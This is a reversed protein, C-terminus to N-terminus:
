FSVVACENTYNDIAILWLERHSKNTSEKVCSPITAFTYAKLIPTTCLELAKWSCGLQNGVIWVGNCQIIARVKCGKIDLDNLNAPITTSHVESGFMDNSYPVNTRFSGMKDRAYKINPTFQEEARSCKDKTMKVWAMSNEICKEILTADMQEIMTCFAALSPHKKKDKSSMNISYTDDKHKKLPGSTSHAKDVAPVLEERKLLVDM